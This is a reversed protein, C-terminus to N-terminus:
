AIQNQNSIKTGQARLLVLLLLMSLHFPLLISVTDCIFIHINVCLRADARDRCLVPFGALASCVEANTNQQQSGCSVIDHYAALIVTVVNGTDVDGDAHPRFRVLDCHM